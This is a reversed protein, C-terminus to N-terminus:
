LRFKTNRIQPQYTRIEGVSLPIRDSAKSAHVCVAQGERFSYGRTAIICDSYSVPHVPRLEDAFDDGM